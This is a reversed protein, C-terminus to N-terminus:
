AAPGDFLGRALQHRTGCRPCAVTIHADDGFIGDLDGRLAPALVGAVRVPSCGCCFRYPRRELPPHALDRLLAALGNGDVSALWDTDCDPQATLLAFQDGGLEFYRAPRQESRVYYDAAALLIDDGKFDVSSRRRLGGPGALEAHLVNGGVPRVHETFVQGTVHGTPNEAVGFLNMGASELHLTWACTDAQPRSAAHLVLAALLLKWKEDAGGGWVVGNQGLHLYMDMFLPGFDASCLLANHERVFCCDVLVVGEEAVKSVNRGKGTQRPARSQAM